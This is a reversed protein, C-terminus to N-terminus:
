NNGVAFRSLEIMLMISQLKISLSLIGDVVFFVELFNDDTFHGRITLQGYPTDNMANQEKLRDIYYQHILDSTEYSHLKLLKETEALIEREVCTRNTEGCKFCKVM